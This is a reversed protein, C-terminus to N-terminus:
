SIRHLANNRERFPVWIYLIRSDQALKCYETQCEIRKNEIEVFKNVFALVCHGLRLM